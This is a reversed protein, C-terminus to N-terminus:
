VLDVHLLNRVINVNIHNRKPTFGCTNLLTVRGCLINRVINVSIHNRKTPTFKNYTVINLVRKSKFCKQCYECQNREVRFHSDSLGDDLTKKLTQVRQLKAYKMKHREIHRRKRDTSDFYKRCYLCTLPKIYTMNNGTSSCSLVVRSSRM